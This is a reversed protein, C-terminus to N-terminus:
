MELAMLDAVALLYELQTQLALERSSYFYSIENMYDLLSMQGSDLAKQLDRLGEDSDTLLAYGAASEALGAAKEYLNEANTRFQVLADQEALRAAELQKKASSIKKGASWLPISVGVSVGRFGEGPVVESKYGVSLSPFAESRSLKLQKESTSTSTRVYELASSKGSAQELWLGFSGPLLVTEQECATIVIDEGGNLNKLEALLGDREVECLRLTGEAEALGVAAKRYDIVSFEGKEYGSRYAQEVARANDARRTYEAILANCNIIRYVLKRAQTLIDRRSARYELALLENQGLALRKRAGTLAGFDFSQSVGFDHRRRGDEGFLYGFEVEPGELRAEALNADAGADLQQQLAKLTLNNEGVQGLIDDITQAGAVTCAIAAALISLIRKM